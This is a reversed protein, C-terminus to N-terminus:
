RRASRRAVHRGASPRSCRPVPLSCCYWREHDRTGHGLRTVDDCRVALLPPPQRARARRSCLFPAHGRGACIALVFSQDPARVRVRLGRRVRRADRDRPPRDRPPAPGRRARRMRLRVNPLPAVARVGGTILASAFLTTCGLTFGFGPGLARGGLVLIFFVLEVGATVRASRGSRPASRRCCASSRSHRRTSGATPSSRSSSRSRSCSRPASCSRPSRARV